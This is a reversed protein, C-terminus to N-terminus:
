EMMFDGVFFTFEVESHNKGWTRDAPKRVRAEVGSVNTGAENMDVVSLNGITGANACRNLYPISPSTSELKVTVEGTKNANEAHSVEGQVGVYETFHDELRKATIHSDTVYGTIVVGDFILNVLDPDYHRM